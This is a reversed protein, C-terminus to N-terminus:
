AECCEGVYLKTSMTSPHTRVFAPVRCLRHFSLLAPRSAPSFGLVLGCVLLRHAHVVSSAPARHPNPLFSWPLDTRGAWNIAFSWAPQVRGACQACSDCCQSLRSNFPKLMKSPKGPRIQVLALSLMKGLYNQSCATTLEMQPGSHVPTSMLELAYVDARRGFRDPEV